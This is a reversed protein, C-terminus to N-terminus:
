TKRSDRIVSITFVRDRYRKLTEKSSNVKVM